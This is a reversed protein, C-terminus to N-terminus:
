RYEELRARLGLISLVGVLVALLPALVDLLALGTDAHGASSTFRTQDTSITATLNNDLLVFAAAASGPTAATALAVAANYNGGDDLKRVQAHRALYAM